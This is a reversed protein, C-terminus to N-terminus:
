HLFTMIVQDSVTIAAIKLDILLLKLKICARLKDPDCFSLQIQCNLIFEHRSECQFEIFAIWTLPLPQLYLLIGPRYQTEM